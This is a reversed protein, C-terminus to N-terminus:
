PQCLYITNWTFFTSLDHKIQIITTKIVTVIEKKQYQVRWNQIVISYKKTPDLNAWSICIFLQVFNITEQYVFNSKFWSQSNFILLFEILGFM